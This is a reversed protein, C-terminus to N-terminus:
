KHSLRIEYETSISLQHLNSVSLELIGFLKLKFLIRIKMRNNKNEIIIKSDDKFNMKEFSILIKKM